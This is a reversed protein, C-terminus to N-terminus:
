QLQNEILQQAQNLGQDIGLQGNLIFRLMKWLTNKYVKYGKTSPVPVGEEYAKRLVPYYDSEARTLEWASEVAPLKSLGSCFNHQLAPDSLSLMLRRALLPHRTKRPIAFGKFDLLPRMADAPGRPFPHVGFPVDLRELEPISFSASLMMAVEGAIFRSFMSDRERLDLLGADIQRRIFEVAQRTAQDDARISGDAEVLPKKGFGIQFPILWYASYANWAAPSIGRNKLERALVSYEDLTWGASIREEPILDERYFLMQADCYFPLAWLRGNLSLADLSKSSFEELPFRVIPQLANSATLAPLYDSQLLLLDPPKGGGRLVSMLKSDSKPVENIRMPVGHLEGWRSLEQKLLSVGEWAIWVELEEVSILEGDIEIGEVRSLQTEGGDAFLSYGNEGPILYSRYPFLELSDSAPSYEQNDNYLIRIRDIAFFVPLLEDLSLSPFSEGNLFRSRLLTSPSASPQHRSGNIQIDLAAIQVSLSVTCVM